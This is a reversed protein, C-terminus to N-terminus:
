DLIIKFKQDDQGERGTSSNCIHAVVEPEDPALSQVVPLCEVLDATNGARDRFKKKKFSFM